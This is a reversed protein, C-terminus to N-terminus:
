ILLLNSTVPGPSAAEASVYVLPKSKLISEDEAMLTRLVEETVIQVGLTANLTLKLSKSERELCRGFHPAIPLNVRFDTEQSALQEQIQPNEEAYM